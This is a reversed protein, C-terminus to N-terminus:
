ILRHHRRSSRTLRSVTSNILRNINDSNYVNPRFVINFLNCEMSKEIKSTKRKRLPFAVFAGVGGRSVMGGSVAGEVALGLM